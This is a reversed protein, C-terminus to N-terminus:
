RRGGLWEVIADVHVAPLPREGVLWKHLTSQPMGLSRAAETVSGLPRGCCECWGIRAKVQERLEDAPSRPKRPRGRGRKIGGETM